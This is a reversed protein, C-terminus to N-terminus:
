VQQPHKESTQLILNLVGGVVYLIQYCFVVHLDAQLLKYPPDLRVLDVMSVVDSHGGDAFEEDLLLEYALVGSDHADQEFIEDVRLRDVTVQGGFFHSSMDHGVVEMGDPGDEILNKAFFGRGWSSMNTNENLNSVM